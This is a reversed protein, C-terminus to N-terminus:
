GREPRKFTKWRCKEVFKLLKEGGLILVLFLKKWFRRPEAPTAVSLIQKEVSGGMEIMKRNKSSLVLAANALAANSVRRIRNRACLETLTKARVSNQPSLENLEEWGIIKFYNYKHWLSSVSNGASSVSNPASSWHPRKESVTNKFCQEAWKSQCCVWECVYVHMCVHMCVYM